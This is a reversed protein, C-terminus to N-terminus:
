PNGRPLVKENRQVPKRLKGPLLGLTAGGEEESRGPPLVHSLKHHTEGLNEQLFRASLHRLLTPALDPSGKGDEGPLGGGEATRQGRLLVAAFSLRLVSTCTKPLVQEPFFLPKM